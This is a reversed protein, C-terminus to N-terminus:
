ADDVRAKKNVRKVEETQETDTGAKRHDVESITETEEDQPAKRKKNVEALKKKKEEAEQRIRREVLLPLSAWTKRSTEIGDFFSWFAEGAIWSYSALDKYGQAGNREEYDSLLSRQLDALCEIFYSGRLQLPLCKELLPDTVLCDGKFFFYRSRKHELDFYEKFYQSGFDRPLAKKVRSSVLWLLIWWFSELDHQYNNPVPAVPKAPEKHKANKKSRGKGSKKPLFPTCPLLVECAMFKPTGTKPIMSATGESPFRKAYELDSLKVQWKSTNTERYALINGGSIDRHIWGACFMLRLAILAQKLIDIAEGLTPIDHLPTCVTEYLFRCQCRPSLEAIVPELKERDTGDDTVTDATSETMRDTDSTEKDTQKALREAKFLDASQEDALHGRMTVHPGTGTSDPKESPFVEPMTWAHPSVIHGPEGIHKAMICSFFRKYGGNFAEALSNMDDENFDRLIDCQRWVDNKQLEDLDGFLDHQIDFETPTGADMSVDKLILYKPPDEVPVLNKPGKVQLVKFIRTSKGRLRLSHYEELSQVTLYYASEGQNEGTAPFEYVYRKGQVFTVLPDFGLQEDKACFISVLIRIYLDPREVISFSRSKASHSRSFFWLSVRDDEITVAFMFKRRADDNMTHNAHSAVQERNAIVTKRTRLVKFEFPVVIDTVRLKGDVEGMNETAAADIRQNCGDIDSELNSSPCMRIHYNNLKVGTIKALVDRIAEGLAAMPDFHKIESIPKGAKKGKKKKVSAPEDFNKLVHSYLTPKRPADSDSDGEEDSFYGDGEPEVTADVADDDKYGSRPILLDPYDQKLLELVKKITEEDQDPFYYGIFDEIMCVVTQTNMLRVIKPRLNTNTEDGDALAPTSRPTDPGSPATPFGHRPNESPKRPPTTPYSSM